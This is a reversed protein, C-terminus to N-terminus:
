SSVMFEIGYYLCNIVLRKQLGESAIYLFPVRKYMESYLNWRMTSEITMEEVRVILYSIRNLLDGRLVRERERKQMIKCLGLLGLIFMLM